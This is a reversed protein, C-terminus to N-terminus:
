VLLATQGILLLPSPLEFCYLMSCTTVDWGRFPPMGTICELGSWCTIVSLGPFMDTVCRLPTNFAWCYYNHLVDAPTM